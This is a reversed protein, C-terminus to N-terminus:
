SLEENMVPRMMEEVHGLRNSASRRANSIINLIQQGRTLKRDSSVDELGQFNIWYVLARRYAQPDFADDHM